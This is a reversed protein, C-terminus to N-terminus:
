RYSSTKYSKEINKLYEYQDLNFYNCTMIMHSIDICFNINNIRGFNLIENPLVLLNQFRQGGFHWPFPAMNQPIIEYQNDKLGNLTESLIGYSDEKENNDFNKDM